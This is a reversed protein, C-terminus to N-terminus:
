KWKARAKCRNLDLSLIHCPYCGEEDRQQSVYREHDLKEKNRLEHNFTQTSNKMDNVEKEIMRKRKYGRPM